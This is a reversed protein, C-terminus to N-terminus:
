GQSVNVYVPTVGDTWAWVTVGVGVWMANRM